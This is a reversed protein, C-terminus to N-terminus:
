YVTLSWSLVFVVWFFLQTETLLLYATVLPQEEPGQKLFLYNFAAKFLHCLWHYQAQNVVCSFLMTLRQASWTLLCLNSLWYLDVSINDLYFMMEAGSRKDKVQRRITPVPLQVVAPPHRRCLPPHLLAELTFGDSHEGSGSALVSEEKTIQKLWGVTNLGGEVSQSTLCGIPASCLYKTVHSGQRQVHTLSTKQKRM